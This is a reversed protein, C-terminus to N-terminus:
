TVPISYHTDYVSNKDEHLKCTQTEWSVNRTHVANEEGDSTYCAIKMPCTILITGWGSSSLPLALFINQGAKRSM